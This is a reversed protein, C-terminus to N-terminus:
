HLNPKVYAPNIGDVGPFKHDDNLNIAREIEELTIDDELESPDLNSIYPNNYEPSNDSSSVNSTPNDVTPNLLNKFYKM